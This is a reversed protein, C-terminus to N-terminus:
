SVKHQVWEKDEKLSQVTREPVLSEHKLTSVAKQVLGYGIVAVVVGIVLPSLFWSLMTNLGAAMLGWALLVCVGALICLAGMYAVSAGAALYAGNRSLLATKETVETKVLAIEQKLLTTTEDRLEKLLDTIGRGDRVSRGEQVPLRSTTQMDMM